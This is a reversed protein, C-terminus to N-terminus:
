GGLMSKQLLAKLEFSGNTVIETGSKIGQRIEVADQREVGTTVDHAQFRDGGEKTFVVRKNAVRQVAATPVTVSERDLDSTITVDVFMGARLAQGPNPLRIRAPLTRSQPDLMAALTAIRGSWTRAGTPLTISVPDAVAVTAAAAEPIQALVMVTELNAVTFADATAALVEGPTADIAVVVGPIPSSLTAAGAASGAGSAAPNLRIVTSQLAAARARNAESAAVAEALVLRRREAEARSLSGDRSLIEARRLSDRAVAVAAEAERISAQAAVLNQQASALGPMDLRALPQDAAVAEGLSVLIATIRAQEFPRVHAVHGPDFAVTGPVHIPQTIPQRQATVTQLKVTHQQEPSMHVLGPPDKPQAQASVALLLTLVATPLRTM